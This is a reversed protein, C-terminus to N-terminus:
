KWTFVLHVKRIESRPISVEDGDALKLRVADAGGEKEDLGLLEGELRTARGALVEHGKRM